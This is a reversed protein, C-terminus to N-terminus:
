TNVEDYCVSAAELQYGKVIDQVHNRGTATATKRSPAPTGDANGTLLM